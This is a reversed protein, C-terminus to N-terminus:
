EEEERQKIPVIISELIDAVAEVTIMDHPNKRRLFKIFGKMTTLDDKTSM